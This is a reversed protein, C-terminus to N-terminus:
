RPFAPIFDKLSNCNQYLVGPDAINVERGSLTTSPSNTSMVKSLQMYYTATSRHRWGVHGMVDQLGAGALALTIACGSRFGHLTAAQALNGEHLYVRFRSDAASSSFPRDVIGGDPTIPRFLFGSTIDIGIGKAFTVYLDIAKVPCIDANQNRRIAFLNSSGDRLTKGWVHNFLLGSNDPFRLIEPTKVQSLDGPRDGSFFLTKFFAQDRLLVFMDIPTLDESRLKRDILHSLQLLDNVFFPTAQKPTAQAQLQEATVCKLYQKLSLDTAPNGLLLRPDWEGRRGVENFITRLKGIFSDVTGFALRTPCPCPFSGKRAYFQCGTYHVKTKGKQDKWVLFRCLERPTVTSIDKPFPLSALFFELEKQLSSKQKSYSTNASLSAIQSLRNDLASVDLTVDTRQTHGVTLIKRKYGCNQCYRFTADNAYECRPCSVSQCFLKPATPM